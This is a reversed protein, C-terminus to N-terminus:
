KEKEILVKKIRKRLVEKVTFKYNETKFNYGEKPIFGATKFVFGGVTEFDSEENIVEVGIVDNIENIPTKGLVIFKDDSVEKISDEERDYEDWIEGVVEEIIDEMTILGSTGGFEDVVIAIHMKRKQFERLLDDVKKEKPVFMAKRVMKSLQVIENSKDTKLFPLIDKAYLIGIINDLDDLYLPFRSHGTENIIEVIEGLTFKNSIANIDVRPTMIEGAVKQRFSVISKILEQEEEELTGKEQGIDSLDSIEQKTLVTKTKDIKIKSTTAKILEALAESVPYILVNIWYMPVITIKTFLVPNRSAFVKPLLESFLLILITLVVIQLSIVLEKALGIVPALDIALTVAVISAAVNAVTNGVLITVLLKRPRDILINLYSLLLKHKKFQDKIKRKEITFLAVESGSFFASAALLFFLIVIQLSWDFDM